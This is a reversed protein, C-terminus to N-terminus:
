RAPRAASRKARELVSLSDWIRVTFDGSASVLRTGDPSFAVQHVYDGHGHLEGVAQCTAMDWLRITNDACASALRTGDPHFALGYVNTGHPLVATQKWTSTDWLRVTGDTSGSALWRGDLSVALAWVSSAHGTLVEIPENRSLDWIRVTQDFEHGASALWDGNPAFVVARVFDQHGRLVAVEAWTSVDWVHVAKDKSGCALRDGRPSFAVRSDPYRNTPVALRHLEKGTDVDWLHVSDDRGLSALLKGGPHFSVSSMIVKEQYELQSRQRGTNANWIRVTGDWSASAVREGDPHFAVDYVQIRHGRLVGNNEARRVDWWRINGDTSVSTVTSGDASFAAGATDGTHGRLIGLSKGNTADWLRVTRDGGASALSTGDPSFAINIVYGKHGELTAIREGTRGNWLAVAQGLACMAIRSGDGNFEFSHIDANQGLLDALLNGDAADWLRLATNPYYELTLVRDGRPSFRVSGVHEKHGALLAITRGQDLDWIRATRDHDGGSVMRRGDPSFSLATIAGDHGRLVQLPKGTAADWVIITKDASGTALRTSDPSFELENVRNEHGRLIARSRNAAVDWLLTTHDQLAYAFLKGDRSFQFLRCFPLYDRTAQERRGVRITAQEKRGVLDWFHLTYDSSLLAAKGGDRSFCVSRIQNSLPQSFQSTDLQHYLHRWEWGRHEPPAGDLAAGAASVNQLEMASSAAMLNSRYREWRESQRQHEVEDRAEDAAQRQKAEERLADETRWYSWSVLLFGTLFIAAVGALSAAIGQNRRAWRTLREVSSIRRANVPLDELFRRLDEALEEAKQYRGGPEREIAKHIVTSLDRPVARCLRDLRAPESTTVQKILRNREREEFAPQFALMEYLTLGLSYVDSRADTNGELAEPPMYRLTGLIDGTHTLNQQDDVKALGFDAVWVTGQTDLLLNSPKIDRHHIGQKHAYALAEAVQVGISAVSQWYTQKKNKSKSGDRGRGPPAVSSSSLTFSDSSRPRPADARQHKADAGGGLKAADEALADDITRNFEWPLLSRALYAASMEGEPLNEIQGTGRSLNSVQGGNRSGPPDGAIFTGTRASGGQLKKLEELVEDLGLGQIFQM